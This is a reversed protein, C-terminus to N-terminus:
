VPFDTPTYRRRPWESVLFSSRFNIRTKKLRFRKGICHERSEGLYKAFNVIVSKLPSALM